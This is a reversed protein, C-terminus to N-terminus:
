TDPSGDFKPQFRLEGPLAGPAPVTDRAQALM